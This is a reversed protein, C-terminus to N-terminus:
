FFLFHEDRFLNRSLLTEPTMHQYFALVFPVMRYKLKRSVHLYMLPSIRLTQSFNKVLGLKTLVFFLYRPINSLHFIRLIGSFTRTFFKSFTSRSFSDKHSYTKKSFLKNRFYTGELYKIPNYRASANDQVKLKENVM